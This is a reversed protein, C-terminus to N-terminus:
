LPANNGSDWVDTYEKYLDLAEQPVANNNRQIMCIGQACATMKVIDKFAQLKNKNKNYLRM